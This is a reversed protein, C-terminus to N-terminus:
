LNEELYFMDTGSIQSDLYDEYTAFQDLSDTGAGQLDALEDDPINAM